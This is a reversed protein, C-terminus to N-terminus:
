AGPLMSRVLEELWQLVPRFDSDPHAQACADVARAVRILLDPNGVDYAWCREFHIMARIADCSMPPMAALAGLPRGGAAKYRLAERRLEHRILLSDPERALRSLLSEIGPDPRM